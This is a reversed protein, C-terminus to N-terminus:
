PEVTSRVALDRRTRKPLADAGARKPAYAPRAGGQGGGAGILSGERWTKTVMSPWRESEVEAPHEQVFHGGRSERRQLACSVVMEAVAALNGLEVMPTNVGFNEVVANVEAQIAGVEELAARMGTVRRVIGVNRWMLDRLQQRKAAAWAATPASAERAARAGTFSASAAAYHLARGGSRMAHEAHAVSPQVARNAFVLGELLSNSALRNAGHLGSCAVEGCAYLGQVNTEGLLGTQVGGCMYHQAPLVPIPERTIDIGLDNCRASINPFHELIANRPKHSIDLWVHADSHKLLQDHIARAVIDRPALEMRAPDYDAMFRHGAKNYLIGGEGRVAESILFTRKLPTPTYLATPHFQIFEMNSVQAGARYAMAMGDGTSVHPNTTNPYVQGGGGSALM